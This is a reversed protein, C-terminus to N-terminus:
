SGASRGSRRRTSPTDSRTPPSAPRSGTRWRRWWTTTAPTLEAFRPGPGNLGRNWKQRPFPAGQRGRKGSPARWGDIGSRRDASGGLLLRNIIDVKRARETSRDMNAQRDQAADGFMIPPLPAASGTAPRRARSAGLASRPARQPRAAARGPRVRLQRKRLGLLRAAALQRHHRCARRGRRGGLGGVIVPLGGEQRGVARPAAQPDLPWAVAVVGDGLPNAVAHDGGRVDAVLPVKSPSQANALACRSEFPRIFQCMEDLPVATGCLLPLSGPEALSASSSM